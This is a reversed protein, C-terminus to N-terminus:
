AVLALFSIRQGTGQSVLGVGGRALPRHINKASRASRPTDRNFYQRASLLGEILFATEVLDGGNDYKGFYPM